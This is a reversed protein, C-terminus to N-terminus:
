KINIITKNKLLEKIYKKSRAVLTITVKKNDEILTVEYAKM